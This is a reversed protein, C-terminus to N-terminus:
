EKLTWPQKLKKISKSKRIMLGVALTIAAVTKSTRTSIRDAIRKAKFRKKILNKQVMFMVTMSDELSMTVPSTMAIKENEIEEL